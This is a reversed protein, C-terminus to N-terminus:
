KGVITRMQSGFTGFMQTRLQHFLRSETAEVEGVLRYDMPSRYKRKSDTLENFLRRM